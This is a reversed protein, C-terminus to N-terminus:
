GSYILVAKLANFTTEEGITPGVTEFEKQEIDIEKSLANLLKNNQASDIPSTRVFILKNSKEISAVKIKEAKLTKEVAQVQQSTVNKNFSLTLRSGGTFDISLNLGWLFIAVIGPILVLLSIAFYWNKHKIINM